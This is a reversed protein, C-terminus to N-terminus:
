YPMRNKPDAGYYNSVVMGNVFLMYLGLDINALPILVLLLPWGSTDVNHLRKVDQMIVFWLGVILATFGLLCGLFKTDLSQLIQM